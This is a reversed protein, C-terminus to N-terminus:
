YEFIPKNLVDEQTKRLLQLATNNAVKVVLDEGEFLMFFVPAQKLLAQLEQESEEIKKRAMVQETVEISTSMQGIMRGHEDFMPDIIADFYRTEITGNHNITLPVEKGNFRKGTRFIENHVEGVSEKLEPRAKFLPRGLVDERKQGWIQLSYKNIYDVVLEKGKLVAM